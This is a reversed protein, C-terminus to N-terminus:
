PLLVEHSTELSCVIRTVTMFYKGYYYVSILWSGAPMSFQEGIAHSVAVAGLTESTIVEFSAERGDPGIGWFKDGESVMFRYSQEATVLNFQHIGYRQGVEKIKRSVPLPFSKDLKGSIRVKIAGTSM